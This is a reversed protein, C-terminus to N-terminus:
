KFFIKLKFFINQHDLKYFIKINDHLLLKFQMIIKVLLLEKTWVYKLSNDFADNM